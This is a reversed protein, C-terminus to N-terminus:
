QELELEGDTRFLTAGTADRTVASFQQTSGAGITAQAPSVEVSAVAIPQMTGGGDDGGGCAAVSVATLGAALWKIPRSLSM